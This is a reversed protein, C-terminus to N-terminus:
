IFSQAEARLFLLAPEAPNEIELQQMLEYIKKNLDIASAGPHLQQMSKNVLTVIHEKTTKILKWCAESVYIQQSVNHEYEAKIQYMIAQHLDASTMGASRLTPIMATPNLRELFLALREYAQIKFNVGSAIQQAAISAVLQKKYWHLGVFFLTFFTTCLMLAPLCQLGLQFANDENM